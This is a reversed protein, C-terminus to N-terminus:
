DIDIEFRITNMYKYQNQIQKSRGDVVITECFENGLCSFIPSAKLFHQFIFHNSIMSSSSSEGFGRLFCLRRLTLVSTVKIKSQTKFKHFLSAGNGCLYRINVMFLRLASQHDSLLELLIVRQWLFATNIVILVICINEITRFLRVNHRM